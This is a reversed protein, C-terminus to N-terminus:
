ISNNNKKFNKYLNYIDIWEKHEDISMLNTRADIYDKWSEYLIQSAQFEVRNPQRRINLWGESECEDVISSIAQRTSRLERTAHAITYFENVSFAYNCLRAFVNKLPTSNFYRQMRTDGRDVRAQYVKIEHSSIIRVMQRYISDEDLQQSFDKIFKKNM